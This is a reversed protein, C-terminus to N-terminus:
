GCTPAWRAFTCSRRAPWRPRPRGPDPPLGEPDRVQALGLGTNGATAEVILGGPKLRGDREAADIMSLAVRDKISGGPNQNELKLFLGCPGTDLRTVKLLPTRGILDLASGAAPPLDHLLKSMRMRWPGAGVGVVGGGGSGGPPDRGGGFSAATRPHGQTRGPHVGGPDPAQYALATPAVEAYLARGEATLDLRHSRGDAENAMRATLGRRALGAAARSVTVKDMVTRACLAQQTLPGDEGLVAILRWQPITLGFRTRYARAILESVANAAVSLRYPLYAELRLTPADRVSM